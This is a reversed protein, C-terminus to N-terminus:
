GDFLRGMSDMNNWFPSFLTITSQTLPRFVLCIVDTASGKNMVVNVGDYLLGTHQYLLVQGRHFWAPQTMDGGQSGHAKICSEPPDTGHNGHIEQCQPSASRNTTGQTMREVKRFFLRLM